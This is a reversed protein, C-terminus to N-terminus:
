RPEGRELQVEVTVGSREDGRARAIGARREGALVLPVSAGERLNRWWRKREPWGVGITVVDGTRSYGVPITFSRGSRRGTVTILALRGSLLRHAPSRLVALVVPNLTRNFVAFRAHPSM